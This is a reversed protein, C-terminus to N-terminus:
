TIRQKIVKTLVESFGVVEFRTKGNILLPTIYGGEEKNMEDHMGELRQEVHRLIARTEVDEPNLNSKDFNFKIM